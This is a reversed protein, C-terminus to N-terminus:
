KYSGTREVFFRSPKRNDKGTRTGGKKRQSLYDAARSTRHQRSLPAGYETVSYRKWMRGAAAKSGGVILGKGNAKEIASYLEDIADSM